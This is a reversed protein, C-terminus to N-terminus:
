GGGSVLFGALVPTCVAVYPSWGQVLRELGDDSGAIFLPAVQKEARGGAQARRYLVHFLVEPNAPCEVICQEIAQCGPPGRRRKLPPVDSELANPRIVRNESSMSM